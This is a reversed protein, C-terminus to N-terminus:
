GGSYPFFITVQDEDSLISNWSAKADNIFFNISYRFPEPIQLIKFLDTVCTKNPLIMWGNGDVMDIRILGPGYIKIRMFENYRIKSNIKILHQYISNRKYNSFWRLSTIEKLLLFKSGPIYDLFRRFLVSRM